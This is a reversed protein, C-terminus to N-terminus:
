DRPSPSTYLLCALLQATIFPLADKPATRRPLLVETLWRRRVTAAATWARNGEVVLKRGPDAAAGSGTGTGTDPNEDRLDPLPTPQYRSARPM